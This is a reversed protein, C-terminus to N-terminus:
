TGGATWAPDITRSHACTFSYAVCPNAVYGIPPMVRRQTGTALDVIDIGDGGQYAISAGDPSWSPHAAPGTVVQQLAGTQLALVFL